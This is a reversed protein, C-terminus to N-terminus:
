EQGIQILLLKAHPEGQASALKSWYRAQGNDQPVGLGNQYLWGINTQAGAHRQAAAKLYWQMAQSYDKPVGWGNMLILGVGYDGDANGKDAAKRYWRMSEKYDRKVFEGNAYTGGLGAMVQPDGTEAARRYWKMAEVFDQKVGLGKAYVSGVCVMGMPRKNDAAERCLKLGGVYDKAAFATAARQEPSQSTEAVPPRTTWTTCQAPNSACSYPTSATGQAPQSPQKTIVREEWGQATMCQDLFNQQNIMQTGVAAIALGPTTTASDPIPQGAASQSLALNCSAAAMKLQGIDRHQNTIDFWATQTTGCGALLLMAMCWSLTIARRAPGANVWVSLRHLFPLM